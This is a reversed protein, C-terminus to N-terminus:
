KMGTNLTRVDLGKFFCNFLPTVGHWVRRCLMVPARLWSLVWGPGVHIPSQKKQDRPPVRTGQGQQPREGGLTHNQHSICDTGPTKVARLGRADHMTCVHSRGKQTPAREPTMSVQLCIGSVGTHGPTPLHGKVSWQSRLGAHGGPVSLYTSDYPRGVQVARALVPALAGGDEPCDM